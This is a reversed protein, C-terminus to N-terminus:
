RRPPSRAAWSRWSPRPGACCTGRQGARAATRGPRQHGASLAYYADSLASAVLHITHASVNGSEHDSHLIFYMRAVDDYPKDIGMMHPRLQRRLRPEPDPDIQKDDKFKLRYIFAGIRGAAQGHLNSADEYM